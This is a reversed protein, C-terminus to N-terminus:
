RGACKEVISDIVKHRVGNEDLLACFDPNGTIKESIFLKLDGDRAVIGVYIADPAVVKLSELPRSTLFVNADISTLLKLLKSRMAKPLEDLADIIHFSRTVRQSIGKLM